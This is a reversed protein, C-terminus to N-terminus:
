RGYVTPGYHPPHVDKALKPTEGAVVPCTLHDPTQGVAIDPAAITGDCTIRSPCNPHPCVYGLSGEWRIGCIPCGPAPQSLPPLYPTTDPYTWPVQKTLEAELRAIRAELDAQRAELAILRNLNCSPTNSVETIPAKPKARRSKRSISM